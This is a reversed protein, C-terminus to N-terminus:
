QSTKFAGMTAPKLRRKVAISGSTALYAAKPLDFVTLFTARVAGGVGFIGAFFGSLAGGAIM